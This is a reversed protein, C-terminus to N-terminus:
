SLGAVIRSEIWVNIDDELWGVADGGLGMQKPFSADHRPSKVNMRDYITSRSLGTREIVQKLRLIVPRRPNKKAASDATEVPKKDTAAIPRPSEALVPEDNKKTSAHAVTEKVQCGGSVAEENAINNGSAPRSKKEKRFPPSASSEDGQEMLARLDDRTVFLRDTSLELFCVKDAEFLRWFVWQRGLDKRGYNPFLKKLVGEQELLYGSLFDSQQTKGQLEIKLCQASSLCLLQPLLVFPESLTRNNEDYVKLSVWDPVGILLSTKNQVAYHVLDSVKCGAMTAAEELPYYSKHPLADGPKIKSM